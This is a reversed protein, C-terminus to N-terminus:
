GSRKKRQPTSRASQKTKAKAAAKKAQAITAEDDAARRQAEALEDASTIRTGPIEPIKPTKPSSVQAPRKVPSKRKDRIADQLTKMISNVNGEIKAVHHM